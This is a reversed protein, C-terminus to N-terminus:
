KGTCFKGFIENVLDEEVSEGIIVGLQEYADMLDISYFDEPMDMEISNKVKSISDFSNILANKHRVNTIIVEDNYSINGQFFMEKLIDYLHEMGEMNKASVSVVSFKSFAEETVVQKLDSKNLLVIVKKDQILEMILNDNKDLPLSGDVVYLVLDAQEVSNKAKEVGIQEVVDDTDRIGATDIINLTIGNIQITEELTDRTTGAIETVIAREEGVLVNLLSSKGANPKGVIATQIGEKLMRGNDASDILQQLAILWQEVLIMLKEGYGDISIHEPDDLASEIFAIEYIIEERISKIKSQINGKLQKVSSELAFQNKAHIVDMVAEAQSLDLRGNLFARKTFEGPEAPRAGNKIILELITKVVMVGGHSQIEVVDEKTYSNPALMPLMLCEDIERTGDVIMGYVAKHSEMNSFDWSSYKPRFINKMISVADSGSIRIIGIGSNNMGTAIAAITDNIM